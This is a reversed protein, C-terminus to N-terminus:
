DQEATAKTEFLSVLRIRKSNGLVAEDTAEDTLENGRIVRMRSKARTLYLIYIASFFLSTMLVILWTTGLAQAAFAIGTFTISVAIATLTVNRHCLGRDLLLHHIHNRDPSFPSRGHMIRIGFVRLTDLLPLLMIGFGVAPSAAIPMAAATPAIQIFKVVLITNVLGLLLSGTDGMFIKAPHFNYILFALLSGGMAYGLVAYAINGTVMFYTGFTVATLLGVSGALGDVGDILNFANIIVVMTFLTFIYSLSSHLEYIGLFGYMNTIVLNAKFMLIGAVILQGAFKKLASLNLIDDKLGVFFIILFAGMFYQFEPSGEWFSGTLLLALAFGGFIGVGGLSPIPMKHLKRKDDPEDYLKKAKAIKITIPIAYFTVLFSVIGGIIIQEM